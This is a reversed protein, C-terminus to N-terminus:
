PRGLAKTLQARASALNYEAQVKQGAANTLAVQADGLEIVNGVGTQYRGEALRLRERANTLAEEAAGLAAKGARVALRAQDVELRVQQRLADRQAEIQALNAEAERVQANTLLGQFLPWSLTVTLNWNWVLNDLERGADTVGTSAGLAPWYAGRTSRLTLMQARQQRELSQMEPRAKLSEDVLADIGQEEGQVAPLTEDSVDYDTPAEVGMAQNLQAKGTEYNNEATILQVQANARDTRAQALDIEPRTGVQVFGEIQKLHRDQNELTERAVQVLAKQARAGFYVTRVTLLVQLRTAQETSGQADASARAARWKGSSQEFDWILQSATAALSWFNFTDFSSSAAAGAGGPTTISGPAFNSTKRQYTGTGTVQPLLPARAEDARARAAETSARAQRVQPQRIEATRVAEDLTLVKAQLAWVLVLPGM